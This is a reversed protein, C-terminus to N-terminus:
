RLLLFTIVIEIATSPESVATLEKADFSAATLNRIPLPMTREFARGITFAPTTVLWVTVMSRVNMLACGASP